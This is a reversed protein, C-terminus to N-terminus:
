AKSRAALPVSLKRKYQCHSYRLVSNILHAHCTARIPSFLPNKPPFTLSLSCKSSGPRFPLIINLNTYLCQSSRAPESLSLHSANTIATIFRRTSYVAPFKKVLQSGTLKVLLIRSWPILLYTILHEILIPRPTFRYRQERKESWQTWKVNVRNFCLNSIEAKATTKCQLLVLVISRSNNPFTNSSCPDFM